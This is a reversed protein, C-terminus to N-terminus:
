PRDGKLGNNNKLPNPGLKEIQDTVERATDVFRGAMAASM